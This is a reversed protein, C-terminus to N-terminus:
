LKYFYDLAQQRSSTLNVVPKPYNKAFLWPEHIYASDIYSLEKVYTRIYQGQPDYKKSQLLPNFIRFYPASDNGCGAVWQWNFGNIAPDADVLTDFFWREGDQWPLLLNKTLFSACIMRVRNHMWGTEWLQRMGADIIPYGTCGLTWAQMLQDNNQWPFHFFKANMTEHRINEHHIMTHYSFERWGLENAFSTSGSSVPVSQIDKWIKRISIAGVNLYASIKSTGLHLAPFDRTKDYTSMSTDFFNKWQDNAYEFVGANNKDLTPAGMGWHNLIKQPWGAQIQPIPFHNQIALSFAHNKSFNAAGLPCPIRSLYDKAHKWFAGYRQFKKNHVYIDDKQFLRNDDYRVIQACSFFKKVQSHLLDDGKPLFVCACSSLFSQLTHLDEVYLLPIGHDNLIKQLEKLISLLFVSSAAGSNQKLFISVLPEKKLSAYYLGPHDDPRLNNQLFVINMM